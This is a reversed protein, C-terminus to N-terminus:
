DTRIAVPLYVSIANVLARLLTPAGYRDTIVATNVIAVAETVTVQFIVTISGTPSVTGTWRIGGTATAVGSTARVSGPVYTTHAPIPDFLVSDTASLVGANHVQLTYTVADGTGAQEPDATKRSHSLDVGHFEDAGVDPSVDRAEGDIDIAVGASVGQDIAVRASEVLHLDGGAGDLFLSLPQYDLNGALTASGGRDRLNHTVLNNTIDVDTNGWRWEISSFPAQTSAVTNHVVVAGCAQELCVGCDFGCDSAYLGAAGAFIFNNRIAGDYHGVGGSTVPCPDPSYTRGGGSGLGFGVGRANDILVNRAVVTDRSGTWLHVAHESLDDDGCDGGDGPCWSGEILNDRVEWGWAEHGDVGGTYCSGNRTWVFSRGAETLEIHSCAIVGNDAYHGSHANIKIAQQGPDVIYVNYILANEIDTTGESHPHVHIPHDHARMVTLDAITVDSAAITILDRGYGGDNYHGDIVAAERNGSASRITVGDAKVFIYENYPLDYTGDHLLFTDGPSANLILLMLDNTQSPYVDIVNGAPPPLAPCLRDSSTISNAVRVAGDDPTVIGAHTATPAPALGLLLACLLMAPVIRRVRTAYKSM